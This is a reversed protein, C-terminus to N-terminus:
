GTGRLLRRAESVSVPPVFPLLDSLTKIHKMGAAEALVALHTGMALHRVLWTNRLRYTNFRPAGPPDGLRYLVGDMRKAPNGGRGSILYRDDRRRATLAVQWFRDEWEALVTVTRPAPNGVAAVVGGGERRIDAPRLHPYWQGDLGAGAGAVLMTKLAQQQEVTGMSDAVRWLTDLEDDTYPPSVARQPTRSGNRQWPAEVTLARGLQRLHSVYTARSRDHSMTEKVFADVNDPDLVVEVDLGIGKRMSWESIRALARAWQSAAHMDAPSMQVVLPLVFDRLRRDWMARDVVHAQPVYLDLREAVAHSVPM